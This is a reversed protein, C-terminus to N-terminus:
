INNYDEFEELRIMAIFFAGVLTIIITIIENIIPFTVLPVPTLLINKFVSYKELNMGYGFFSLNSMALGLTCRVLVLSVLYNFLTSLLMIKNHLLKLCKYYIVLISINLTLLILYFGINSLYQIPLIKYITRYSLIFLFVFDGWKIFLKGFYFQLIFGFVLAYIIIFFFVVIVM